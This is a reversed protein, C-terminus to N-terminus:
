QRESTEPCPLSRCGGELSEIHLNYKSMRIRLKLYFSEPFAEYCRTVIIIVLASTEHCISVSTVHASVGPLGSVHDPTILLPLDHLDSDLECVSSILCDVLEPYTGLATILILIGLFSTFLLRIPDSGSSSHKSLWGRNVLSPSVYKFMLETSFMILWSTLKIM